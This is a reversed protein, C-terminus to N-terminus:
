RKGACSEYEKLARKLADFKAIEDQLSSKGIIAYRRTLTIKLQKPDIVRVESRLKKSATSTIIITDKLSCRKAFSFSSMDDVYIIDHLKDSKKLRKFRPVFVNDSIGYIYREYAGIDKKIIRNEKKMAKLKKELLRIKEAMSNARMDKLYSLDAASVRKIKKITNKLRKNEKKLNIIVDSLMDKEDMMDQLRNALRAYGPDAQKRIRKKIETIEKTNKRDELMAIALSTSVHKSIVLYLVKDFLQPRNKTELIRRIHRIKPSIARCCAVAAALSDREHDNEVRFGSILKQKESVRMDSRLHYLSAGLKISINKVYEPTNKKDSAVIMPLGKQTIMKIVHHMSLNKSSTVLVPACNIDLVAIGITTGPDIGVILPQM